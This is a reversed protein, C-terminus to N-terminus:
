GKKTRLASLRTRFYALAADRETMSSKGKFYADWIKGVRLFYTSLFDADDATKAEFLPM